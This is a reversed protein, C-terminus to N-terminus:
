RTRNGAAGEDGEDDWFDSEDADSTGDGVFLPLQLLRQWATLLVVSM